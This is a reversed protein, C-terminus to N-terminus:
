PNGGEVPGGAATWADLGGKLIRYNTYGNSRLLFAV